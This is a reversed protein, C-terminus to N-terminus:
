YTVASAGDSGMLKFFHFKIVFNLDFYNINRTGFFFANSFLTYGPQFIYLPHNIQLGVVLSFSAFFSSANFSTTAIKSVQKM